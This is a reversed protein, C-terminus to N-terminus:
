GNGYRNRLSYAGDLHIAESPPNVGSNSQMHHRPRQESLYDDM